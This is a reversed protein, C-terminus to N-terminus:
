RQSAGLSYIRDNLQTAEFASYRMQQAATLINTNKADRQVLNM